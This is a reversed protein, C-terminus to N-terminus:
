DFRNLDGAERLFRRRWAASVDDRQVKLQQDVVLDPIEVGAVRGIQRVTGVPDACFDEYYIQLPEIGNRAFYRTWRASSSIIEALVQDLETTDYREANAPRRYEHFRGTQQARMMSIAQGLHDRRSLRIFRVNPVADALDEGAHVIKDFHRPHLKLSFVGNSSVGVRHAVHIEGAVDEPYDPIFKRFWDGNFYESPRGLKGTAAMLQCLWESGTREECAVAISLRIPPNPPSKSLWDELQMGGIDGFHPHWSIGLDANGGMLSAGEHAPAKAIRRMWRKARESLKHPLGWRQREYWVERAIAHVTDNSLRTGVAVLRELQAIRKCAQRSANREEEILAELRRIEADRTEVRQTLELDEVFHNTAHPSALFGNM